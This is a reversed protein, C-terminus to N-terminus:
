SRGRGANRVLWARKGRRVTLLWLGMAVLSVVAVAGAAVLTASGSAGPADTTSAAEGLYALLDLAERDTVPRDLYAAKMFPFAPRQIVSRLTANGLRSAVLTVDASLAGGRGSVAHCAFCPTGGGSLPDDGFFLRAGAAASGVEAPVTLDASGAARLRVSVEGGRLLEVLSDIEEPTLPDTYEEQMRVVADRVETAPGETSPLLDPGDLDGEGVTHCPACRELFLLAPVDEAPAVPLALLLVVVATILVAPRNSRRM